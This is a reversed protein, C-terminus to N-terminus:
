DIVVARILTRQQCSFAHSIVHEQRSNVQLWRPPIWSRTAPAMTSGGRWSAGEAAAPRAGATGRRAGTRGRRRWRRTLARAREAEWSWIGCDGGGVPKPKFCGARSPLSVPPRPCLRACAPGPGSRAAEDHECTGVHRGQVAAFFISPPNKISSARTISYERKEFPNLINSHAM